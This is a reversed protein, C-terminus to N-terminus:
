VRRPPGAGCLRGAEWKRTRYAGREVVLRVVKKATCEPTAMVEIEVRPESSCFSFHSGGTGLGPFIGAVYSVIPGVDFM